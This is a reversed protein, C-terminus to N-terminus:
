VEKQSVLTTIAAMAKHGTGEPHHCGKITRKLCYRKCSLSFKFQQDEQRLRGLALIVPM